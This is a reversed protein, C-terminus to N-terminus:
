THDDAITRAIEPEKLRDRVALVYVSDDADVTPNRRIDAVEGARCGSRGAIILAVIEVGGRFRLRRPWRGSSSCAVHEVNQAPDNEPQDRPRDRSQQHRPAIRETAEAGHQ